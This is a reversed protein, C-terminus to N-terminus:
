NLIASTLAKLDLRNMNVYALTIRMPEFLYGLSELEEQLSDLSVRVERTTYYTNEFLM